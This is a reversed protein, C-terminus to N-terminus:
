EDGDEEPLHRRDVLVFVLGRREVTQRIPVRRGAEADLQERLWRMAAPKTSAAQHWPGQGWRDDLGHNTVLWARGLGLKLSGALHWRDRELEGM